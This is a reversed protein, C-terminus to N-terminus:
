VPIGLALMLVAPVHQKKENKVDTDRLGLLKTGNFM